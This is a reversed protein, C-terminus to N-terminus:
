NQIMVFQHTFFQTGFKRELLFIENPHLSSNEVTSRLSYYTGFLNKLVRNFSIENVLSNKLKFNTSAQLGQIGLPYTKKKTKQGPIRLHKVAAKVGKVLHHIVNM